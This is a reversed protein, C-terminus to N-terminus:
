NRLRFEEIDKDYIFIEGTEIRYYWGSLNLHGTKVKQRIYSYTMLHKLQEVVNDQEIRRKRVDCENNLVERHIREKVPNMLELWKRTHPLYELQISSNLSAACGGCNSHGCIIINEVGLINVAYEIASTTAVHEGTDRYPPVINAINRIIFLEGPLTGTIMNPDIRSDSCSIFLTHPEQGEKLIKFLDKHIQFSKKRFQVIGELLKRM